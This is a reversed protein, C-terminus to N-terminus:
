YTILRQYASQLHYMIKLSQIEMIDMLTEIIQQKLLLLLKSSSQLGSQLMFTKFRIKKKLKYRDNANGSQNYNLNIIKQYETKIAVHKFCDQIM